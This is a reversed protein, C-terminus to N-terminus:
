TPKALSMGSEHLMDSVYKKHTLYIGQPKRVVEIGLFYHLQGLDKIHLKSKLWEKTEKIGVVDSGSIVIDGVYVM